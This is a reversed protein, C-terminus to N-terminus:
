PGLETDLEEVLRASAQQAASDPLEGLMTQLRIAAAKLANLTDRYNKQKDAISEDGFAELKPMRSWAVLMRKSKALSANARRRAVPQTRDDALAKIFTAMFEERSGYAAVSMLGYMTGGGAAIYTLEWAANGIKSLEDRVNNVQKRKAQSLRKAMANNAPRKCDVYYAYAQKMGYTSYDHTKEGYVETFKDLGLKLVQACPMKFEPIDDDQAMALPAITLFILPLLIRLVLKQM